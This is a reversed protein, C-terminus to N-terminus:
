YNDRLERVRELFQIDCLYVYTTLTNIKTSKMMTRETTWVSRM